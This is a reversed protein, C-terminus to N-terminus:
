IQARQAFFLRPKARHVLTITHFQPHIVTYAHTYTHSIIFADTYTDHYQLQKHICGPYM